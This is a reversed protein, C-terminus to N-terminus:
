ATKGMSIDTGHRIQDTPPFIWPNPISLVQTYGHCDRNQILIFIHCGIEHMYSYDPKRGQYKEWPTIGGPLSCTLTKSHLAMVAKYPAM